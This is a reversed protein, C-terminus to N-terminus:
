TAADILVNLGEVYAAKAAFSSDSRRTRALEPHMLNFTRAKGKRKLFYLARNATKM